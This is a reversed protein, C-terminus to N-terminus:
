GTKNHLLVNPNEMLMIPTAPLENRSNKPSPTLRTSLTATTVELSSLLQTTAAAEMKIDVPHSINSTSESEPFSTKLLRPAMKNGDWKDRQSLIKETKMSTHKIIHIFQVRHMCLLAYVCIGQTGNKTAWLHSQSFVASDTPSHYVWSFQPPPPSISPFNTSHTWTFSDPFEPIFIHLSTSEPLIPSM